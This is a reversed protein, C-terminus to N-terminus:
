RRKECLESMIRSGIQERPIQGIGVMYGLTGAAIGLSLNRDGANLPTGNLVELGTAAGAISTLADGPELYRLTGGNNFFFAFHHGQDLAANGGGSTQSYGDRFEQKYGSSRGRALLQIHREYYGGFRQDFFITFADFLLGPDDNAVVWDAYYAMGECDTIDGRAVRRQQQVAAYWFDKMSSVKPILSLTFPSQYPQDDATCSPHNTRVECFSRMPPAPRLPFLGSPDISNVPDGQAYRVQEM